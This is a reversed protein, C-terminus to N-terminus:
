DVEARADKFNKKPISWFNLKPKRVLIRYGGNDYDMIGNDNALRAWGTTNSEFEEKYLVTGPKAAAIVPMSPIATSTCSALFFILFLARGFSLRLSSLFKM